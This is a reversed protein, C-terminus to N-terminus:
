CGRNRMSRLFPM